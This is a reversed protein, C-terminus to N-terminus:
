SAFGAKRRRRRLHRRTCQRCATPKRENESTDQLEGSKAGTDRDHHNTRSTPARREAECPSHSLEKRQEAGRDEKSQVTRWPFGRPGVARHGESDGRDQWQTAEGGSQNLHTIEREGTPCRPRARGAEADHPPTTELQKQFNPLHM